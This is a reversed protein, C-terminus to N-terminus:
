HEHWVNDGEAGLFWDDFLVLLEVGTLWLVEELLVLTVFPVATFLVLGLLLVVLVVAALEVVPLAVLPVLDFWVELLKVLGELLAVLPDFVLPDLVLPDDLEFRVLLEDFEVLLEVLAVEFPVDLEFRVLAVLVVPVVLAVFVEDLPVELEFLVLM